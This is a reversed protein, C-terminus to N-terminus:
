DVPEEAGLVSFQDSAAVMSSAVMLSDVRQPSSVVDKLGRGPELDLALASTGFQMDLDLLACQFKLKHALLWGCNVALTSAGVGGRSGIVVIIKAERVASKSSGDSRLTLAYTQALIEPTLPKVLYDNLGAASLSRYLSVDNASGVGILKGTAGMLARLRTVVSSPDSQSDIDIVTVKPASTQELMQAFLDPGGMQVTAAPFGQKEAFARISAFTAEDAVFAMFENHMLPTDFGGQSSQFASM